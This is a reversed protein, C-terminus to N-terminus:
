YVMEGRVFAATRPDGPATFFQSAASVEVLRGDLLGVRENIAELLAEDHRRLSEESVRWKGRAGLSQLLEQESASLFPRQCFRLIDGHGLHLDATFWVKM